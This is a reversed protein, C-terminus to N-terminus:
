LKIFSPLMGLKCRSPKIIEYNESNNDDVKIYYRNDSNNTNEENTKVSTSTSPKSNFKCPIRSTRNDSKKFNNVYKYDKQKHLKNMTKTENKLCSSKGVVNRSNVHRNLCKDGKECYGKLFDSCVKTKDNLKVHLYPCSDKTCMGQLYFYCTPMKKLTLEHSLLCMEDHCIGKLFKRCISVHKKDHLYECKGHAMRLCKGYKKFLPCPINNIKLNGKIVGKFKTRNNIKLLSKNSEMPPKTAKSSKLLISSKCLESNVKIFKFRSNNHMNQLSNNVRIYKHSIKKPVNINSAYVSSKVRNPINCEKLTQKTNVDRLRISKYKNIKVITKNENTIPKIEQKKVNHRVLCFRSKVTTPQIISKEIAVVSSQSVTQNQLERTNDKNLNNLNLKNNVTKPELTENITPYPKIFNPNIYIKTNNHINGGFQSFKPNIHMTNKSPLIQNNINVNRNFNPNIYVKMVGNNEM